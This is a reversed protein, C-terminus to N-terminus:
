LVRRSVDGGETVLAIHIKVMHDECKVHGEQRLAAENRRAVIFM